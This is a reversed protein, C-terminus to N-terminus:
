GDDNILFRWLLFFKFIVIEGTPALVFIAPAPVKDGSEKPIGSVLHVRPVQFLISSNIRHLLNPVLDITLRDRIVNGTM